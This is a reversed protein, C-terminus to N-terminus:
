GSSGPASGDQGATETEVSPPTLKRHVEVERIKGDFGRRLKLRFPGEELSQLQEATLEPPKSVLIDNIVLLRDGNRIGAAHVSSGVKVNSIRLGRFEGKTSRDLDLEAQMALHRLYPRLPKPVGWGWLPRKARRERRADARENVGQIPKPSRLHEVRAIAEADEMSLQERRGDVELVVRRQDIRIVEAGLVEDGPMVALREKNKQNEITAVSRSPDSFVLTGVLIARLGTERLDEPIPVARAVSPASQQFLNRTHIIDYRPLDRPASAAAAVDGLPTREPLSAASVLPSVAAYALYASTLILVLQLARLGYVLM